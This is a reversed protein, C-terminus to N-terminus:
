SPQQQTIVGKYAPPWSTGIQYSSIVGGKPDGNPDLTFSGIVTELGSTAMIADLVKQRDNTGAKQLGALVVQAAAHGYAAYFPPQTGNHAPPTSTPGRRAPARDAPQHRRWRLDPLHRQRGFRRWRGM